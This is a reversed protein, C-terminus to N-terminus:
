DHSQSRWPSPSSPLISYRTHFGKLLLSAAAMTPPTSLIWILGPALTSYRPAADPVVTDWTESMTPGTLHQLANSPTTYQSRGGTWSPSTYATSNEWRDPRSRMLTAFFLVLMMGMMSSARCGCLYRMNTPSNHHWITSHVGCPRGVLWSHHVHHKSIHGLRILSPYYGDICM